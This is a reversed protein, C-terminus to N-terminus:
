GEEFSALEILELGHSELEPAAALELSLADRAALHELITASRRRIQDRDACDRAAREIATEDDRVRVVAGWPDDGRQFLVPVAGLDVRTVRDGPLRLVRGGRLIELRHRRYVVLAEDPEVVSLQRGLFAVVLVIAGGLLAAAEGLSSGLRVLVVSVTTCLVLTTLLALWLGRPERQASELQRIETKARELEAQLQENQERLAQRDDRYSM